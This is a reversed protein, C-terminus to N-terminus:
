KKHKTKLKLDAWNWWKLLEPDHRDHSAYYVACRFVYLLCRDVPCGEMACYRAYLKEPDRGKLCSVKKIGLRRLDEEISRGVGPIVQLGKFNDTQRKM